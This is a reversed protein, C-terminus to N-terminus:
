GATESGICLPMQGTKRGASNRRFKFVKEEFEKQIQEQDFARYRITMDDVRIMNDGRLWKIYDTDMGAEKLRTVGFRRCSNWTFNLEHPGDQTYMGFAKAYRTLDERANNRNYPHGPSKMFLYPNKDPGRASLADDVAQMAEDDLFVIRNQRKPHDKIMLIRHKRSIDGIRVSLLEDKRMMTKCCIILMARIMDDDIFELFRSMEELTPVYAQASMRRKYYYICNKRFFPVPNIETNGLYIQWSYFRDLACFYENVTNESRNNQSRLWVNLTELPDHYERQSDRFLDEPTTIENLECYKRIHSAYMLATKTVLGRAICHRRFDNIIQDLTKM